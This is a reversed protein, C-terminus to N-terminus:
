YQLSTAQNTVFAERVESVGSGVKFGKWCGFGRLIAKASHTVWPLGDM